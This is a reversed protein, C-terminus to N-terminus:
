SSLMVQGGTVPVAQGTEYEQEILYYLARMVDAGYTGRRLPVKSEYFERVDDVTQAGPVTNVPADIVWGLENGCIWKELRAGAGEPDGDQLVLDGLSIQSELLQLRARRADGPLEGLRRLNVLSREITARVEDTRSQPSLLEAIRRDAAAIIGRVVAESAPSRVHELADLAQSSARRYYNLAVTPRDAEDELMAVLFVFGFNPGAQQLSRRFAEIKEDDTM